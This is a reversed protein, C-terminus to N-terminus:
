ITCRETSVITCPGRAGEQIKIASLYLLEAEEYKGKGYEVAGLANLVPVMRPSEKGLSNEYGYLVRRLLVEAEDFRREGFYVTALCLM